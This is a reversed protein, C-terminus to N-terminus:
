SRQKKRFATPSMGTQKKFFRSFYSYDAFGLADAIENISLRKDALMRRTELILRESVVETATKGLIENCIRNLHKLTISLKKAYFSPLKQTRFFQEVLSEYQKIKVNYAHTQHVDFKAYQREIEIHICDLLNFMKHRSLLKSEREAILLDFYAKISQTEHADLSIEPRSQVSRYFTYDSLNKDGFYLDYLEASYIAVFGEIDDSLNWHHLQGPQLVFLSGPKIEYVDFDVEHTGSGRTFLLLLHSSHRHPQEIFSHNKLHDGFTNVYLDDHISDCKFNDVEYIPYKVM